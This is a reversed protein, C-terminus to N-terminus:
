PDPIAESEPLDGTDGSGATPMRNRPHVRCTQTFAVGRDLTTMTLEIVAIFRSEESDLEGNRDRDLEQFDIVGDRNGDLSDLDWDATGSFDRREPRMPGAPSVELSALRFNWTKGNATLVSDGWQYDVRRNRTNLIQLSGPGLRLIGGGTMLNGSLSTFLAQARFAADRRNGGLRAAMGADKFLALALGIVVTSLSVAIVLEILTVGSGGVLVRSGPKGRIPGIRKPKRSLKLVM